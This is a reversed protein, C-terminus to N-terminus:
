KSGQGTLQILAQEANADAEAQSVCSYATFSGKINSHTASFSANQATCPVTVPVEVRQQIVIPAPTPTPQYPAPLTDLDIWPLVDARSWVQQPYGTIALQVWGQYRATPSYELTGTQVSPAADGDPSWYLALGVPLGPRPTPQPTAATTPMPTLTPQSGLVDAVPAGVSGAGAPLPTRQVFWILGGALLLGAVVSLVLMTHQPWRSATRTTALTETDTRARALTARVDAAPQAAPTDTVLGVIQGNQRITKAKM